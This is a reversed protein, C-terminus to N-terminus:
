KTDAIAISDIKRQMHSIVIRKNESYTVRYYNSSNNCNLRVFWRKLIAAVVEGLRVVTLVSTLTHSENSITVRTTNSKKNHKLTSLERELEAM